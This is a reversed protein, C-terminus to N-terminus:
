ANSIPIGHEYPTRQQLRPFNSDIWKYADQSATHYKWQLHLACLLVCAKKLLIFYLNKEKRQEKIEKNKKLKKKKHSLLWFSDILVFFLNFYAIFASMYCSQISYYFM